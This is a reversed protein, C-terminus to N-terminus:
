RDERRVPGGAAAAAPAPWGAARRRVRPSWRAVTEHDCGALVATRRLSGTLDYAELIGM